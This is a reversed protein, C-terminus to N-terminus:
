IPVYYKELSPPPSLFHKSFTALYTHTLLKQISTSASAAHTQPIENRSLILITVVFFKTEKRAKNVRWKKTLCNKGIIQEKVASEKDAFWPMRYRNMRTVKTSQQLAKNKCYTSQPKQLFTSVRNELLHSRWPYDELLLDKCGKVHEEHSAHHFSVRATLCSILQKCVLYTKKMQHAKLHM